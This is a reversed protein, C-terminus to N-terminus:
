PFYVFSSFSVHQASIVTVPHSPIPHPRLPTTCSPVIIITRFRNTNYRYVIHRHTHSMHDIIRNPSGPEPRILFFFFFVLCSQGELDLVHFSVFLLMWFFSIDQIRSQSAHLRHLETGRRHEIPRM